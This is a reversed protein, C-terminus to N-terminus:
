KKDLGYKIFYFTRSWAFLLAGSSFFLFIFKIIGTKWGPKIYTAVDPHMTFSGLSKVYNTENVWIPQPEAEKIIDYPRVKITFMWNFTFKTDNRPLKRCETNKVEFFEGKNYSM